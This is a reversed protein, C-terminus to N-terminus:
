VRIESDEDLLLEDIDEYLPEGKTARRKNVADLLKQYSDSLAEVSHSGNGGLCEIEFDYESAWRQTEEYLKHIEAISPVESVEKERM